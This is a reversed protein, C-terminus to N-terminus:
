MKEGRLLKELGSIIGSTMKNEGRGGLLSAREGLGDCCM